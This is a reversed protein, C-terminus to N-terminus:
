VRRDRRVVYFAWVALAATAATIGLYFPDTSFHGEEMVMRALHAITLLAFVIGTTIVYAKVVGGIQTLRHSRGGAASPV